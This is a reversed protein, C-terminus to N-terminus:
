GLRQIKLSAFNIVSPPNLLTERSSGRSYADRQRIAVRDVHRGKDDRIVVSGGIYQHGESALDHAMNRGFTVASSATPCDVGSKDELLAGDKKIIAFFYRM